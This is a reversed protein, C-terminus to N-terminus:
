FSTMTKKTFAQYLTLSAKKIHNVAVTVTLLDNFVAPKKYDISLSKVVLLHGQRALVDQEFGLHRLWETRAREMFRIYSAHYVIQGADTDEFYVRVPWHFQANM